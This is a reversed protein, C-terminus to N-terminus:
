RWDNEPASVFETVFSSTLAHTNNVITKWEPLSSRLFQFEIPYGKVRLTGVCAPSTSRKHDLCTLIVPGVKEDEIEPIYYDGRKYRCGSQGACDVATFKKLGPHESEASRTGKLEEGIGDRVFQKMASGCCRLRLLTYSEFLSDHVLAFSQRELGLDAEVVRIPKSSPWHALMSITRVKGDEKFVDLLYAEPIALKLRHTTGKFSGEFEFKVPKMSTSRISSGAGPVVRSYLYQAFLIYLAAVILIIGVFIWLPSISQRTSIPGRQEVTKSPEPTESMVM